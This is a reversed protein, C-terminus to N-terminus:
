PFSCYLGEIFFLYDCGISLSQLGIRWQQQQISSYFDRYLKALKTSVPKHPVTRSFQPQMKNLVTNSHAPAVADIQILSFYHQLTNNHKVQVPVSQLSCRLSGVRHESPVTGEMSSVQTQGRGGGGGGWWPM